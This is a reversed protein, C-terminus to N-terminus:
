ISYIFSKYRNFADDDEFGHGFMLNTFGNIGEMQKATLICAGGFYEKYRRTTNFYVVLKRPHDSCGYYNSIEMPLLDVDHFVYCDYNDQKRAEKYGINILLGRNFLAKGLIFVYALRQFFYDCCFICPFYVICYPVICFIM